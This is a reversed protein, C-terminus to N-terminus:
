GSFSANIKATAGITATSGSAGQGISATVEVNQAEPHNSFNAM